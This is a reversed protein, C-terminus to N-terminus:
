GMEARGKGGLGGGRRAVGKVRWVGGAELAGWAKIHTDSNM